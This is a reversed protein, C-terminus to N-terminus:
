RSYRVYDVFAELDPNGVDRLVTTNHERMPVRDAAPYDTYVTLGAQLPGQMDPRNFRRRVQWDGGPFKYLLVISSGIRVARLTVTEQGDIFEPRSVSNTTTKVELQYTGPQDSTGTSLFC